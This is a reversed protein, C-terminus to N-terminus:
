VIRFRRTTRAKKSFLQSPILQMVFRSRRKTMGPSAPIWALKTTFLGPNGGARSHHISAVLRIQSHWGNEHDTPSRVSV